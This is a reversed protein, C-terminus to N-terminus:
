KKISQKVKSAFTTIKIENANQLNDEIKPEIKPEVKTVFNTVFNTVINPEAKYENKTVSPPLLNPLLNYLINTNSKKCSEIYNMHTQKLLRINDIITQLRKEEEELDKIINESKIINPNQNQNQNLEISPKISTEICFEASPKPIIPVPNSEICLEEIPYTVTDTDVYTGYEIPTSPPNPTNILNGYKENIIKVFDLLRKYIFILSAGKITSAIIRLHSKESQDKFDELSISTITDPAIDRFCQFVSDRNIKMDQKLNENDSFVCKINIIRKNYTVTKLTASHFICNGIDALKIHATIAYFKGVNNTVEKTKIDVNDYKNIKAILIEKMELQTPQISQISQNSQSNDTYTANATNSTSINHKNKNNTIIIFENENDSDM